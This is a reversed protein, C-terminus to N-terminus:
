SKIVVLILDALSLTMAKRHFYPFPLAPGHLLRLLQSMPILTRPAHFTWSRILYVSLLSVVPRELSCFSSRRLQSCIISSTNKRNFTMLLAIALPQFYPM